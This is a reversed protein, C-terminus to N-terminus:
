ERIEAGLFQLERRGQPEKKGGYQTYVHVHTHCLRELINTSIKGYLVPIDIVM